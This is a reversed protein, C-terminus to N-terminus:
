NVDLIYMADRQWLIPLGKDQVRIWTVEPDWEDHRDTFLGYHRGNGFPARKFEAIPMGEVTPAIMVFKDNPAFYKTMEVYDEGAKFSATPATSVTITSATTDVSSITEDEYTGASRDHFRLTEGAEFDAADDVYITTSSGGTVATTIYARVEYQEDNIIINPIDLLSGLVKPNVGVIKNKMGKFLDGEGFTSKSLLTLIDSDTAMYQLVQSNCMGIEVKGGNATSIVRKGTMINGLIDRKTGAEWKYDTGLTESNEDPIDYDVSVMVGKNTEYSFSGAFFLKSWMWEKRRRARNVLGAMERALRSEADLYQETTGEKRLNNLFEEDFPIKEKWYAAEAEHQAVGSIETVPAPAGPPVFPTMGRRGRRSEWKISSSPSDTEEFLNSFVLEPPTMFSEMFKQLVELRLVPIDSSGRPM